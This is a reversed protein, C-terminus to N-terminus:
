SYITKSVTKDVFKAMETDDMEIKMESLAEKFADVMNYYNNAASTTTGNVSAQVNGLRLNQNLEGQLASLVNKGVNSVQKLVSNEEQEIGIGLGELLFQGMEKTAKSPSKEKLSSKLKSLLSSGFKAISGFVSSQKDQNKVGNNVGEILDEGAKKADKDKKTVEKITDTVIKAMEEKSTKKGSAVGDVYMQVNGKGDEKFSINKGTILSLTEDLGKTWKVKNADLGVETASTYQKLSEKQQKLLEENDKIQQDYIDSGSKKKLKKLLELNTETTKIQDELQKKQADGTSQFDKVYNWNVQTMESYKGAHALAMNQEYQGINFAYKSLLEEQKNYNTQAASVEKDKAKIKEEVQEVEYKASLKTATVWSDQAKTYEEQKQKLEEELKARESKRKNLEDEYTTLKRTAEGQKTIAESYLSEQSDLIIQAKKKEMVEDITSKLKDYNQIVGDVNKIEIGLAESLTSTIFSAREEYGKKVKGNQDVIGQLEKSLSEYYSLQTLGKDVNNQQAKELDNWAKVNEDIQEKEKELKKIQKEHASTVEDTKGKFISFLSILATVGTIILGIPNAKWAANLLNTAATLGKTAVAGLTQASTLGVQAATNTTTAAANAYAMAATKGLDKAVNILGKSMDSLMKTFPSLKKIAFAAVMVKVANVVLTKHNIFWEFTEILPKLEPIERKLKPFVETVISSILKKIGDISVKIRPVLNKAATVASDVFEDVSKSIDKNDDAIATLLNSWAAKMSKVSGEITSAAEKSTTGTIGMNQQVKNIALIIQDFSVKQDLNTATLDEGAKGLIGSEKVLRAMESKTGGYGLKLNDLMTYNQKAFGQYANQIMEISTGMKNANDSMDIIATNAIQAAKKTDGGLGQLLSASFSTAQQMYQNASVGATKYAQAAYDQVINASDKFLTEVGGVLQEYEAYSEIAQKGVSIVASGLKKMSNIATNIGQTVLNALVGKFVTFGDGANEVEKGTEKAEKGLEDIGKKANNITKTSNNIESKLSAMARKNEDLQSSSDALEKGLKDVVEAQKKYENSSEGSAKKIRDLETVANKFEKNLANHRTTQAQVAVAYQSYTNKAKTLEAEQKKITDNLEKQMAATNKISKDNSNFTSTQNKLATSMTQLSQTCRQLAQRYESEGMLKVTGGFAM